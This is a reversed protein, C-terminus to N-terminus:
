HNNSKESKQKEKREKRQELLEDIAQSWRYTIRGLSIGWSIAGYVTLFVLIGLLIDIM